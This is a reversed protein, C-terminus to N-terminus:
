APFHPHASANSSRESSPGAMERILANFREPEDVFLAHGANEFIEIRVDPKHARLTEAHRQMQPRIVYLLPRDLKQLAGRWDAPLVVLNGLLIAATNTPTLM